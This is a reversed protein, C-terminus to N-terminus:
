TAKMTKCTDNVFRHRNLQADGTYRRSATTINELDVIYFNSMHGQIYVTAITLDDVTKSEHNQRLAGSISKKTLFV